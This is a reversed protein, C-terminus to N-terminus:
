IPSRSASRVPRARRRRGRRPRRRVTPLRRAPRLLRNSPSPATDVQGALDFRDGGKAVARLYGQNSCYIQLALALDRANIEAGTLIDVHVGIKLPRRRGEYVSFAAPWTEALREVIAQMRARETPKM